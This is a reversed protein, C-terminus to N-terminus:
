NFKDWAAAREDIIAQGGSLLYDEMGADFIADFQDVPAVVSQTLIADRKEKLANDMGEEAAIIGYAHNVGYRAEHDTIAFATEIFRADVYNYGNAISKVSKQEDGLDLGNIVITYDINNPSNFVDPALPSLMKVSGDEQPEHGVNPEGIQLFMRNEVNSLWDLYLLSALPEDNTAPFFVKRDIPGDLFKRYIGADNPFPEVAIYAAEDGVMQKLSYHIGNEGNRYPYDWNHAFAGVYGAKLLNDETTDGMPYLAFDKWILGENYWKNLTRIGEKIGPMLFKRDDFGRTYKEQETLAEPINSVLLHENRYGVDVMTSFPIMKDADAGLLLEANDRFAILMAEFEELTTPAAMNLKALWDERVFVNTRKNVQLKAELAYLTGDEPNLNWYINNEGLLNWLNPLADKNDAVLPALDLVGGMNAYTQITPYSYTVCVDPADNSALLNNLEDVETWRGVPVFTVEVNHDRLMGDKIFQAYVSSEPDTGGDNNRDYVEVTIKKTETFRGDVLESALASLPALLSVLILSVLLVSLVKKM